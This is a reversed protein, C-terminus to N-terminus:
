FQDAWSIKKRNEDKNGLIFILETCLREICNCFEGSVLQRDMISQRERGM